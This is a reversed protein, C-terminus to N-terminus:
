RQLGPGLAVMILLVGTALGLAITAYMLVPAGVKLAIVLPLPKVRAAHDARLHKLSTLLHLWLGLLATVLLMPTTPTTGARTGDESLSVFAAILPLTLMWGVFSLPTRHLVRNHLLSVVLSSLLVLGATTGNQLSVPVALLFLATAVFTVNGSPVRGDAVPKGPRDARRDLEADFVDNLLGAIAQVLWVAAAIVLARGFSRDILLAAVFAGVALGFTVRPHTCGAILRLQSSRSRKGPAAADNPTGSADASVAAM